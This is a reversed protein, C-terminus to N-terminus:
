RPRARVSQVQLSNSTGSAPNYSGDGGYNAVFVTTGPQLLEHLGAGAFEDRPPLEISCAGVLEAIRQRHRVDAADM